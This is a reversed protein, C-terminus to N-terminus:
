NHQGLLKRWQELVESEFFEKKPGLRQIDRRELTEITKMVVRNADSCDFAQSPDTLVERAAGFNHAVVSTYVANAEALVLGFTEPFVTQPYFLMKSLSLISMFERHTKVGYVRVGDKEEIKQLEIYGPNLVGLELEPRQKRVKKFLELVQTLGKHPSSAFLLRDHNVQGPDKSTERDVINYIVHGPPLKVNIDFGKLAQEFQRKHFESVYIIGDLIQLQELEDKYSEACLDHMWAYHRANPYIARYIPAHQASRMMVIIDPSPMMTEVTVFHVGSEEKEEERNHQLIRVGHERALGKAVRLLTAETGGMSGHELDTYDYPKPTFQDTFLINM